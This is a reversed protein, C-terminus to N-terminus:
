SSKCTRPPHENFSPTMKRQFSYRTRLVRERERDKERGLGKGEGEGERKDPYSYGYSYEVGQEGVSVSGKM